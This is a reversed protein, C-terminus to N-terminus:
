EHYSPLPWGLRINWRWTTSEIGRWNMARFTPCTGTAIMGGYKLHLQVSVKIRLGEILQMGACENNRIAITSRGMAIGVGISHYTIPEKRMFFCFPMPHSL